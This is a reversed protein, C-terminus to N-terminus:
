ATRALKQNQPLSGLERVRASFVAKLAGDIELVNNAVIEGIPDPFIYKDYGDAGEIYDFLRGKRERDYYVVLKGVYDKYRVNEIADFEAENQALYALRRRVYAVIELERETTEIRQGLQHIPMAAGRSEMGHQARLKDVVPLILSEDFANRIMPAYYRDIAAKRVNRLGIRELAFRCFEESPGKAEDIFVTRLRKKVLQVHAAEAITEPDYTGKTASILAEIAEESIGARAIMELDITLFPEADMINPEASDVFFEFLIGNTLIGLKVDALMNFYCRLQERGAELDAGAQKCEVAIVPVGDRLIAFDIKNQSGTILDATHEPYVEYPNAYDYGLLGLFPLVLYLKTSEENTCATMITVSRKALALLGARLENPTMM